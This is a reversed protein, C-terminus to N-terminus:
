GFSSHIDCFAKYIEQCCQCRKALSALRVNVGLFRFRKLHMSGFACSDCRVEEACPLKRVSKWGPLHKLYSSYLDEGYHGGRQGLVNKQERLEFGFPEAASRLRPRRMISFTTCLPSAFVAKLQKEALLYTLWEMVPCWMLNYGESIGIDLPPGFVLGKGSRVNSILSAVSFVEILSTM